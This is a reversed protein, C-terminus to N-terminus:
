KGSESDKEETKVSEGTKANDQSDGSAESEIAPADTAREARDRVAFVMVKRGDADHVNKQGWKISLNHFIAARNVLAVFGDEAKPDIHYRAKPMESWRSTKPPVKGVVRARKTEPDIQTYDRIIGQSWDSHYNLVVRDMAIQMESRAKSPAFQSAQERTVVKPAALMSASLGTMDYERPPQGAKRGPKKAGSAPATAEKAPRTAAAPAAAAAAPHIPSVKNSPTNPAM